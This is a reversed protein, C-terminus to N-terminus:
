GLKGTEHVLGEEFVVEIHRGVKPQSYKYARWHVAWTRNVSFPYVIKRGCAAVASFGAMNVPLLARSLAVTAGRSFSSLCRQEDVAKRSLGLASALPTCRKTGSDCGIMDVGNTMMAKENSAHLEKKLWAGRIESAALFLTRASPSLAVVQKDFSQKQSANFTDYSETQSARSQPTIPRKAPVALPLTAPELAERM